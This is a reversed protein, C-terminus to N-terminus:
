AQHHVSTKPPTILFDRVLQQLYKGHFCRRNEDEPAVLGRTM